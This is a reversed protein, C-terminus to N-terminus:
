RGGRTGPGLAAIPLRRLGRRRAPPPCAAFRYPSVDPRSLAAMKNVARATHSTRGVHLVSAVASADFSMAGIGGTVGNGGESNAELKQEIPFGNARAPPEEVRPVAVSKPRARPMARRRSLGGAIGRIALAGCRFEATEAQTAIVARRRPLAPRQGNRPLLAPRVAAAAVAPGTEDRKPQIDGIGARDMRGYPARGKASKTRGRSAVCPDRDTAYGRSLSRAAAGAGSRRVDIASPPTSLFM